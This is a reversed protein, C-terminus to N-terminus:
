EFFACYAGCDPMSTVPGLDADCHQSALTALCKDLRGKEVGKPCARLVPVNAAEDRFAEICQRRDTYKQGSGLRNCEDARRCRASAVQLVANDNSVVAATTIAFGPREDSERACAASMIALGIAPLLLALRPRLKSRITEMWDTSAVITGGGRWCPRLEGQGRRM